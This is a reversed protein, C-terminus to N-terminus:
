RCSRTLQVAERLGARFSTVQRGDTEFMLLRNADARDRPTFVLYHGAKDQPHPVVSIRGPYLRHVRAEPDGVRIGSRTATGAPAKVDVRVLRGDQFMLSLGQPASQPVGIACRTDPVKRLGVADDNLVRQVQALTMGIRLPGLGDLTLPQRGLVSRPVQSRIADSSRAAPPQRGIATSVPMGRRATSASSISAQRSRAGPKLVVLVAGAGLLVGVLLAVGATVALNALSYVREDDLWYESARLAM